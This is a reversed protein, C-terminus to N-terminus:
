RGSWCWSLRALSRCQSLPGVSSCTAHGCSSTKKRKRVPEHKHPRPEEKQHGRAEAHLREANGDQQRREL